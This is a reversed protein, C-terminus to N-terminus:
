ATRQVSLSLSALGQGLTALLRDGHALPGVGAPTGTFIIDGPALTFVTSLYAILSPINFIMDDTSGSQRVESNVSLSFGLPLTAKVFTSVPAFTPLGKSLAWPKGGKKAEDQLDRATVDIGVAFGAIVSLAQDASINKAPFGIAVVVEVEHHVHNSLASLQITSGNLCLSSTPKLFVIPTSPVANGLERAHEAYNRAICYINQASLGTGPLTM